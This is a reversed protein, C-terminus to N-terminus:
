TLAQYLKVAERDDPTKEAHEIGRQLQRAQHELEQYHRFELICIVGYALLLGAAVAPLIITFLRNMTKGRL